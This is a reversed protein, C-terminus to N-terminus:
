PCLVDLKSGTHATIKSKSGEARQWVSIPIPFLSRNQPNKTPRRLAMWPEPRTWVRPM